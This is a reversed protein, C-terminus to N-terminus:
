AAGSSQLEADSLLQRAVEDAEGRLGRVVVPDHELVRSIGAMADKPREESPVAYVLLALMRAGGSVREPRWAAGPMYSTEVIAGVNHSELAAATAAHATGNTGGIPTGPSRRTFPLARGESDFVAFGDSYPTAGASVLAELLTTTGALGEGAVVIARGRHLVSGGRLFVHDPANLGICEGVHKEVHALALALDADGGIWLDGKVEDAREGRLEYQSTFRLGDRTTITVQHEADALECPQSETPALSHLRQVVRTDNSLLAIRVGFSEFAVYHNHPLITLSM